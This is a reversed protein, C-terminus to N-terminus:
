VNEKSGPTWLKAATEPKEKEPTWISERAEALEVPIRKVDAALRDLAARLRLDDRLREYGGTDRLQTITASVDEDEPSQERILEDVEDDSVDIGADDALAELALERAVSQRAEQRLAEVLEEPSRGTLSVYTDFSLGRREVSRALGNLLERTRAEVLPGGAEIQARRVLEDVAASRFQADLEAAIQDRLTGEVDARLEGLDDFESVRRALEDDLPPLVKEHIEKLAVAVSGSGREPTPVEVEASSGARMGVLREEIEPALRGAGLEVVYDRRADGDLVLDLVLV